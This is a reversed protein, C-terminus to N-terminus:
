LAIISKKLKIQEANAVYKINGIKNIKTLFLVKSCSTLKAKPKECDIKINLFEVVLIKVFVVSAQFSKVIV